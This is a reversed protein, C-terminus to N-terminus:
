SGAFDLAEWDNVTTSDQKQLKQCAAFYNSEERYM